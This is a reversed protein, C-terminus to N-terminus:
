CEALHSRVRSNFGYELMEVPAIDVCSAKGRSYIFLNGCGSCLNKSVQPIELYVGNKEMKKRLNSTLIKIKKM